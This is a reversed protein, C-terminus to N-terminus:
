AEGGLNKAHCQVPGIVDSGIRLYEAPLGDNAPGPEGDIEEQAEECGAPCVVLNKRVIRRERRIRQLCDEGVSSFHKV